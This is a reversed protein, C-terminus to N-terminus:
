IRHCARANSRAHRNWGGHVFQCLSDDRARDGYMAGESWAEEFRCGKLTQDDLQPLRPQFDDAIDFKGDDIAAHPNIAGNRRNQRDVLGLQQRVQPERALRDPQQQIEVHVQQLVADHSQDVRRFSPSACPRPAPRLGYIHSPLPRTPRSRTPQQSRARPEAYETATLSLFTNSSMRSAIPLVGITRM